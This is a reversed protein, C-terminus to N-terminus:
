FKVLHSIKETVTTAILIEEPLWRRTHDFCMCNLLGIPQNTDMIPIDLCAKITRGFTEFEGQFDLGVAHKEMDDVALFSSNQLFSMYADSTGLQYSVQPELRELVVNYNSLTAATGTKANGKWIACRDLQLLTGMMKSIEDFPNPQALLNEINTLADVYDNLKKERAEWKREQIKEHSADRLFTVINGDPLLDATVELVTGDVFNTFSVMTGETKLKNSIYEVLKSPDANASLIGRGKLDAMITQANIGPKLFDSRVKHIDPYRPNATILNLDPDWIAFGFNSGVLASVLQDTNQELSLSPTRVNASADWAAKSKEKKILGFM